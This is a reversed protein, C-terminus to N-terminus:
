GDSFIAGVEDESFRDTSQARCLRAYLGGRELLDDHRGREVIRGKQLVLILDAHRVTSLRHAIVFSTRGELLRELAQQILVETATDVSATAEDLVLVPPNKLLARAISIRQKEGVSLKVGREGVHTDYGEPLDTVFDHVCAARAMAEIEARTADPRGFRMNELITGNFLFTEQSVVGVQERLERLPIQSVDRGDLLIEGGTAEYFRSLLAVLTSKGAGTPGVLAVCQGARVTLNIDHLAPVDSRYAFEVHRYDIQGAAREFSDAEASGYNETAADLIEAVRESSARGAQYLQNISHLQAVPDYFQAVYLLFTVLEGATFGTGALVDRGGVYLVIAGGMAGLCTMGSSYWAWTRMIVLQTEGVLHAADAFRTLEMDERAYSKIQRVGQLNDLLLANMASAARRQDRYRFRATMTYWLVGGLLFPLPLLMWGALRANLNFIIIGVGVIKLVSIIGQEVGDILVREMATVDDIVRTIIDGTARQDYWRLPLRQLTAYLDRRLDLIVKQEFTNNFRIRVANLGDRLLFSAVVVLVYPLLLDARHHQLVRDILLGTAKPFVLGALTSLIATGFTAVVMGPYARAYKWVRRFTKM